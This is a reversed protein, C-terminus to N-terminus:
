RGSIGKLGVLLPNEVSRAVAKSEMITPATPNMPQVYTFLCHLRNRAFGAGPAPLWHGLLVFCCSYQQFSHGIVGVGMALKVSGLSDIHPSQAKQRISRRKSSFKVPEVAKRQGPDVTYKRLLRM